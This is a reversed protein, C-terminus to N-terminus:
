DTNCITKEQNVCLSAKTWFFFCVGVGELSTKVTSLFLAELSYQISCYNIAASVELKVSGRLLYNRFDSYGSVLALNEKM